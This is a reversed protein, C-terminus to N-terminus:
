LARLRRANCSFIDFTSVNVAVLLYQEELMSKLRRIHWKLAEHKEATRVADQVQDKLWGLFNTDSPQSDSAQLQDATILGFAFFLPGLSGSALQVVVKRLSTDERVFFELRM